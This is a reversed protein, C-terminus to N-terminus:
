AGLQLIVDKIDESFRQSNLDSEVTARANKGIRSLESPKRIFYQIAERLEQVHGPSVLYCNDLHRMLDPSWIGKTKTLIVAKGCAMAQLTVSQGSPQYVDKIPVIVLRAQQYLQRLETDSFDSAVEVNDGRHTADIPLRTVIKLPLDDPAAQLLTDYDRALDSGVSLLYPAASAASAPHWFQSDIGFQICAIRAHPINFVEALHQASGEGLVLIQSCQLLLHRYLPLFFRRCWFKDASTAIRDSLGQSFYVISARSLGLWKLFVVPLGSSDNVCVIVNAARFKAFNELPIYLAFGMQTQAAIWREVPRFIQKFWHNSSQDEEVYDSDLCCDSPSGQSNCDRLSSASHQDTLSGVTLHTLGYLMEDPGKGQRWLALREARQRRFVFLVRCNSLSHESSNM